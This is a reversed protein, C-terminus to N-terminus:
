PSYGSFSHLWWYVKLLMAYMISQLTVPIIRNCGFQRIKLPFCFPSVLLRDIFHAKNLYIIWNVKNHRGIAWLYCLGAVSQYFSWSMASVRTSLKDFTLWNRQRLMRRFPVGYCCCAAGAIWDTLHSFCPLFFTSLQKESSCHPIVCNSIGVESTHWGNM